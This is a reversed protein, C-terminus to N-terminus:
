GSIKDILLISIHDVFDKIDFGVTQCGFDRVAGVDTSIVPLGAARAEAVALGYGEYFSTNLLVNATKYYASLNETWPEFILNAQLKYSTAQLKLDNLLSGSGVIILGARSSKKVVERWVEIALSVNKEPELRGAMLAIFDFQPYKKRLDNEPLIPAGLIKKEDIKIPRVEIKNETIKLRVQLFNKIRTSVVRINDARPLLFKALWWRAFNLFAM